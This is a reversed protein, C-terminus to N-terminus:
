LSDLCQMDEKSVSAEFVSSEPCMPLYDRFESAVYGCPSEDEVYCMGLSYDYVTVEAEDGYCANPEWVVMSVALLVAPLM